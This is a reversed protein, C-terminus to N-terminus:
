SNLFIHSVIGLMVQVRTFMDKLKPRTMLIPPRGPRDTVPIHGSKSRFRGNSSNLRFPPKQGTGSMINISNLLWSTAARSADLLHPEATSSLFCSKKPLIDSRVALIISSSMSASPATRFFSTDSARELTISVALDRESDPSSTRGPPPSSSSSM